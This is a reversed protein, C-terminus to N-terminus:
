TLPSQTPVIGAPALSAVIGAPPCPPGGQVASPRTALPVVRTVSGIAAAGATPSPRVVVATVAQPVIVIDMPSGAGPGDSAGGAGSM